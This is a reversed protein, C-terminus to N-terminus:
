LGTSQKKKKFVFIMLLVLSVLLGALGAPYARFFELAASIKAENFFIVGGVAASAAAACLVAGAAADKAHKIGESKKPFVTDCLAEMATNLCELGLVLGICLLLAAWEGANAKTIVAALVVYFAFCLHIRMNQQTRVAYSIGNVAYKFCKM